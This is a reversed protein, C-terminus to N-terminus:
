GKPPNLTHSYYYYYSGSVAVAGLLVAAAWALYTLRRKRKVLMTNELLPISCLVPLNTYARVDKLNKLSTDKAEQLGAMGLGLIISMAFGAGIIMLRNPKTPAAPLNATDLVELIEGAKRSILQGTEDALQQKKQLDLYNQEALQKNHNLEEYDAELGTTAKLSQSIAESEKKYEDQEAQLKAIDDALMKQKADIDKNTQEVEHAMQQQRLQALRKAVDKPQEGSAASAADADAKAAIKKMLQDRRAKYGNLQEQALKFPKYKDPNYQKRMQELQFESNEIFKNLAVLDQNEKAEPSGPVTTATLVEMQAQQQEYFDLKSQNAAKQTELQEITQKDRFIQEGTSTIKATYASERAINLQVQEPLKGENGQKFATLKDSANTLEAKAKNLMESVFGKVADQGTKQTNQNEEDFKAVLAGVTQQALYKDKYSFSIDFASARRGMAGPLAIFDIHIANKMDEIVDELPKSKQEDKYLQLRPDSIIASLSGRSLIETEMSQIRENLTSSITSQVMTDSIQAPTIQMTARSVYVNPLAFAVCISVVMGFFAPGAIWVAHRRGIDIYDEVDLTRRSISFSQTPVM